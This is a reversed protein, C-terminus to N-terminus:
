GMIISCGRTKLSIAVVYVRRVCVYVCMCVHEDIVVDAKAESVRSIVSKCEPFTEKLRGTGTIHDAHAHTNVAYKLTFGLEAILKADRDVTELVPDILIAEKADTDALLYTYTSSEAEYLQRFLLPSKKGKTEIVVRSWAAFGENSLFKFGRATADAVM